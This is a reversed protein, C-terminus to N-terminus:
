IARGLHGQVARFSGPHGQFVGQGRTLGLSVLSVLSGGHEGEDRVRGGKNIYVEKDRM